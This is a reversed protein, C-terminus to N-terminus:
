NRNRRKAALGVLGLGVMLGTSPEPTPVVNSDGFFTINATIELDNGAEGFPTGDVTGMVIGFASLQITGAGFSLTASMPQIGTILAPQSGSAPIIGNSDSASYLADITVEQVQISGGFSFNTGYGSTFDPSISGM